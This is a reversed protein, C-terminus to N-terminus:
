ATRRSCATQDNPDAPVQWRDNAEYFDSADTVHYPALQYRQVKFLDEPYRMHELSSTPSRRARSWRAPFAGMWAQLM